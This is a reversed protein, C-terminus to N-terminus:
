PLAGSRADWLVRGPEITFDMRVRFALAVPGSALGLRDALPHSDLEHVVLEHPGLVEASFREPDVRAPAVTIQQESARLGDAISRSQKLFIQPVEARLLSEIAERLDGLRETEAPSGLTEASLSALEGLDRVRTGEEPRGPAAHATSHDIELLGRRDPHQDQGYREIGYAELAFSDAMGSGPPSGDTGDGAFRPWGWGKLYGYMERGSAVSLPNDLWMFPVFLAALPTGRSGECLVPVWIAAQRETVHGMADFPDPTPEIRGIVGFTILVHGLIPHCEIVGGSPESFVTQCLRGLQARGAKAWFGYLTTDRCRLPGPATTLFGYEVYRPAPATV